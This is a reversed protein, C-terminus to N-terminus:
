IISWNILNFTSKLFQVIKKLIGEETDFIFSAMLIKSELLIKIDHLVWPSLLKVPVKNFRKGILEM